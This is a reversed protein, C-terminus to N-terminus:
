PFGTFVHSLVLSIKRGVAEIRSHRSCSDVRLRLLVQVITCSAQSLATHKSYGNLTHNQHPSIPSPVETSLLRLGRSPFRHQPKSITMLYKRSGALFIMKSVSHYVLGQSTQAVGM